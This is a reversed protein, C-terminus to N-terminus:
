PFLEIKKDNNHSICEIVFYKAVIALYFLDFVNDDIQM